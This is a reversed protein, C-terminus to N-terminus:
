YLLIRQTNWGRATQIKLVYIGHPLHGVDMGVQADITEVWQGQINYIHIPYIVQSEVKENMVLRGSTPNPHVWTNQAATLGDDTSTFGSSFRYVTNEPISGNLHVKSFEQVILPNSPNGSLFMVEEASVGGVLDLNKILGLSPGAQGEYDLEPHLISSPGFHFVIDGSAEYLKLQFHIFDVYVDNVIEGSYFGVNLWEQTFVRQGTSGSYGFYISSMSSGTHYGRDVIDPGYVGMISAINSIPETALTGGSTYDELSVLTSIVQDFFRFEFGIPVVYDPDNWVGETIPFGTGLSVYPEQYVTLSYTQGTATVPILLAPLLVLPLLFSKM